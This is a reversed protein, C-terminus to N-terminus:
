TKFETVNRKTTLNKIARIENEDNENEQTQEAISKALMESGTNM